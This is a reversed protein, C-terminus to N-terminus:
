PSSADGGGVAGRVRERLAGRLRQAALQLAQEAGVADEGRALSM